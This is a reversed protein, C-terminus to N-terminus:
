LGDLIDNVKYGSLDFYAPDYKNDFSLVDSQMSPKGTKKDYFVSRMMMGEPTDGKQASQPAAETLQKISTGFIHDRTLKLQANKAFWMDAKEGDAGTYVYKTCNHGNITKEESTKTFTGSKEKGGQKKQAQQIMKEMNIMPMKMATKDKVNIIYNAKKEYDFLMRTENKDGMNMVMCEGKPGFVYKSKTDNDTRGDKKFTRTQMVLTANVRLKPDPYRRDNEYTNDKIEKRGRERQKESVDKEINQRIKGRIYGRQAVSDSAFSLLLASLMVKVITKQIM